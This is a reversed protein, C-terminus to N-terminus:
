ADDDEVKNLRGDRAVVRALAAVAKEDARGMALLWDAFRRRGELTAFGERATKVRRGGDWSLHTEKATGFYVREWAESTPLASGFGPAGQANIMGLLERYAEVAEEIDDQSPTDFLEAVDRLYLIAYVRALNLVDFRWLLLHERSEYEELEPDLQEPVLCAHAEYAAPGYVMSYGTGGQSRPEANAATQASAVAFRLAAVVADKPEIRDTLKGFALVYGIRDHPIAVYDEPAEDRAVYRRGFFTKTPRHYGALVVFYDTEWETAVVPHGIDISRVAVRWLEDPATKYAITYERGIAKCLNDIGPEFHHPHAFIAGGAASDLTSCAWGIDFAAGSTGALYTRSVEPGIVDLSMRLASAVMLNDTNTDLDGWLLQPIGEIVHETPESM